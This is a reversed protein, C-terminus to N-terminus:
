DLASQKKDALCASINSPRLANLNADPIIFAGARFKHGAAEFDEEAALMKVRANKFRFSMLANDTTHDIVLTKGSGDIRGAPHVDATLPTM